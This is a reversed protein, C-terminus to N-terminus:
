CSVEWSGRRAAMQPGPHSRPGSVVLAWASLNLARPEADKRATCAEPHARRASELLRGKRASRVVMRKREEEASPHAFFGEFQKDLVRDTTKDVIQDFEDRNM